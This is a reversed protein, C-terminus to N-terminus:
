FQLKLALQISRPGGIVYLNNLGTPGYSQNLTQSALGFGGGLINRCCAFNPHNFVNFFESRFQLHVRETFNFQRHLAFDMQWAGFGRLVNRGLTGQLQTPVGSAAPVKTFAAPNFGMGGPCPTGGHAAACQVGHLYFPQGAVVNPRLQVLHGKIFYNGGILDVPLATQVIGIADISWGGLIAKSLPNANWIPVSYTVAGRFSHRLDFDSNGRDINPNVFATGAPLTSLTVEASSANDISHSYTYSGLAQLGRSLRRNFQLQLSQYNSSSANRTVVLRQLSPTINFLQDSRLLRYAASAVYAATFSQNAGLAQEFSLNWQLTYPLQLNPDLANIARFPPTPPTPVPAPPIANNPVPFPVDAVMSQNLFPASGYGTATTESNLDYFLGFGGRVVAERGTSQRLQYALGIRPAFNDYTSKYLPSNLPALTATTPNQLGIVNFPFIGDREGPTPNLEWRLGFTLALRNSVKWTDQGYVSLNTYIPHSILSTVFYAASGDSSPLNGSVLDSESTANFFTTLPTFSFIPFLRRYDIGWKAQHQGVSYSVSDTLNIQRQSVKGNPGLNLIFSEQLLDIEVQGTDVGQVSPAPFLISTDFAKGGGIVNLSSTNLFVNTTYNTRLENNLNARINTDMGVTLGRQTLKVRDFEQPAESNLSGHDSTTAAYRGFLHIRKGLAHDIKVSYSDLNTPNSQSIIYPGAGTPNGMSDVFEPGTPIPWSNLISQFGPASEQRLRLSPVVTTGVQPQVLRLGEYSFFFFTRDKFIPGGLTGGFDNQREAGKPIGQRDNFWNNADLVNNRLYDFGSGHFANTGSRTLLSIQGGPQRGFEPAYTSTQIKFEQLADVTVLSNTGGFITYGPSAGNLQAGISNGTVYTGVDSVGDVTFSNANARQGNVSFQGGNGNAVNASTLVTGPTLLILTQFSRGNLPLNEAFNRDITTGVSGDQTNINIGGGNVTVTESMSGIQLNFNVSVVDEVHLTVDTKVIQKFGAKDVTIRYTSPALAPITYYGDGNTVTAYEVGTAVNVAQVKADPVPLGKPDLVRGTLTATADAYAPRLNVLVVLFAVVVLQSIRPIL